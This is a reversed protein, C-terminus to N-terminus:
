AGRGAGRAQLAAYMSEHADLWRGADFRKGVEVGARMGRERALDPTGLVEAIAGAVLDPRAAPVLFAEEPGYMDPVGGVATAVVPVGARAAELLVVPTGETRSTLALLDFATLLRGAEEVIGHWSVRGQIGLVAALREGEARAPGDGIVHACWPLSRILALAGLFVDIGKEPSLRGVWGITPEGEPIGLQARADARALPQPEGLANPILHLRSKPVGAVALRDYVPRSVAVVADAKRAARLQLWEYVQNKWGGGTFGHATSVQPVGERRAALGSLVDARYGHTHVIDPHFEALVRRLAHVEKAYSRSPIRVPYVPVGRTLAKCAVPHEDAGPGLVLALASRYGRELLGAALAVTVAELGGTAAPVTVQLVSRPHLSPMRDLPLM